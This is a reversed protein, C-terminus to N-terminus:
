TRVWRQPNWCDEPQGNIDTFIPNELSVAVNADVMEDYIMEYMQRINPLSMWDSRNLAFKEGQKTVLKDEHRRLFGRWWGSTVQGKEFSLTGPRRSQQFEILKQKTGTKEVMDNMLAVAEFCSLPQCIKGMQICIQVLAEEVKALPSQAGHHATLLGKQIRSHITKSSIRCKVGFESKKEDILRTLYGYEM